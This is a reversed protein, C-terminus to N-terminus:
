LALLEPPLRGSHRDWVEQPLNHEALWQLLRAWSLQLQWVWFAGRAVPRFRGSKNMAREYVLDSAATLVRVVAASQSQPLELTGELWKGSWSVGDERRVVVLTEDFVDQDPLGSVEQAPLDAEAWQFGPRPRRVIIETGLKAKAPDLDRLEECMLSAIVQIM